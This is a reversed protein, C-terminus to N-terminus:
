QKTKPGDIWGKGMTLIQLDGRGQYDHFQASAAWLDKVTHTRIINIKLEM